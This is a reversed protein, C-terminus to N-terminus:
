RYLFRVFGISPQFRRITQELLTNGWTSYPEGYKASGYSRFARTTLPAIVDWVFAWQDDAYYGGYVASGYRRPSHRGIQITFGISAALDIFHQISQGGLNRIRAMILAVTQAHTPQEPIGTLALWEPFMYTATRPDLEKVVLDIATQEARSLGDGMALLVKGRLTNPNRPFADGPPSAVLLAGQYDEPAAATFSDM